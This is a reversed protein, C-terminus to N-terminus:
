PIYYSSSLVIKNEVVVNFTVYQSQFDTKPIKVLHFPSIAEEGVVGEPHDGSLDFDTIINVTTSNEQFIIKEINIDYSVNPKWGLFVMIGIEKSFDVMITPMNSSYTILPLADDIDGDNTIVWFMPGLRYRSITSHIITEFPIETGQEFNNGNCGSLFLSPVLLILMLLVSAKRIYKQVYKM